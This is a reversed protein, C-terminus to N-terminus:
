HIWHDLCIDQKYTKAFWDYKKWWYECGIILFMYKVSFTVPNLIFNVDIFLFLMENRPISVCMFTM